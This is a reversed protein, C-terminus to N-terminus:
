QIFSFGEPTKTTTAGAYSYIFLEAVVKDNQKIEYKDIFHKFGDVSLSYLRQYTIPQGQYLLREVYEYAQPISKVPIPNTKEVGFQGTTNPLEGNILLRHNQKVAPQFQMSYENVFPNSVQTLVQTPTLQDTKHAFLCTQGLQFLQVLQSQQIDFDIISRLSRKFDNPEMPDNEILLSYAIMFLKQADDAEIQGDFIRWTLAAVSLVDEKRDPFYTDFFQEVNDFQNMNIQKAQKQRNENMKRKPRLFNLLNMKTLM